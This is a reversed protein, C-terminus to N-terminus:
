VRPASSMTIINDPADLQPNQNLAARLDEAEQRRVLADVRVTGHEALIEDIGRPHTLTHTKGVYAMINATAPDVGRDTIVDMWAQDNALRDAFYTQKRADYQAQLAVAADEPMAAIRTEIRASIQDNAVGDGAKQKVQAIIADLQTPPNAPTFVKEYLPDANVDIAHVRMGASRAQQLIGLFEAQAAPSMMGETFGLQDFRNQLVTIPTTGDMYDDIAAQFRPHIEMAFDTIGQGVVYDAFNKNLYRLRAEILNHNMDAVVVHQGGTAARSFDTQLPPTNEM